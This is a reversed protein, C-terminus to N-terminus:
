RDLMNYDGGSSCAFILARQHHYECEHVHGIKSTWTRVSTDTLGDCTGYIEGSQTRGRKLMPVVACDVLGLSCILTIYVFYGVTRLVRDFAMVQQHQACLEQQARVLRV